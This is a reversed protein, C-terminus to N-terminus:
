SSRHTVDEVAPRLRTGCNFVPAALLTGSALLPSMSRRTPATSDYQGVYADVTLLQKNPLLTWGEEDHVDFKGAGTGIWSLTTPNFLAEQKSCCNAQM